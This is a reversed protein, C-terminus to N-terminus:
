EKYTCVLENKKYVNISFSLNALRMFRCFIQASLPKDSNITTMMNNITYDDIDDNKLSLKTINNMVMIIKIIKKFPDDSKKIAKDYKIIGTDMKDSPWEYTIIVKGDKWVTLTYHMQFIEGIWLHFKDLRMMTVKLLSAYYNEIMHDDINDTSMDLLNVKNIDMKSIISKVLQTFVNDEDNIMPTLKKDDDSLRQRYQINRALEKNISNGMLSVNPVVMDKDLYKENSYKSLHFEKGDWIPFFGNNPSSRTMSTSYIYLRNDKEDYYLKGEILNDSNITGHVEYTKSSSPVIGLM